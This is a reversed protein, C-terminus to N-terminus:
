NSSTPNVILDGKTVIIDPKQPCEWCFEYTFKYRIGLKKGNVIPPFFSSENLAEKLAQAFGFGEPDENVVRYERINGNADITLVMTVLGNVYWGKKPYRVPQLRLIPPRDREGLEIRTDGYGSLSSRLRHSRVRPSEIDFLSPSGPLGDDYSDDIYLDTFPEDIFDAYFSIPLDPVQEEPKQPTNVTTLENRAVRYGRLGAFGEHQQYRAPRFDVPKTVGKNSTTTEDSGTSHQVSGFTTMSRDSFTKDPGSLASIYIGTLVSLLLLIGTALLTNTQYRRKREYLSLVVNNPRYEGLM